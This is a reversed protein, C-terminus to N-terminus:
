PTWADTVPQTSAAAGIAPLSYFSEITRLLRYHTLKEAFRGVKVHAGTIITPIQNSQSHDDEDWTLILMSNNSPAWRVYGDLRQKLWLDGQAVTGDHMDHSLNPVVFSLTPLASFTTPFATSPQNTSGPLAAFDVWPAHKRAYGGISCGTFGAFPLSESYGIFSRGSTRLQSGLNATTFNHPCSDDTLGQTSGSFMALYNPQSPHTVGFSQTFSAGAKALSNIYPASASGIVEAFSHNEMVVVVVHAPRPTTAVSAAAGLPRSAQITTVSNAPGAVRQSQAPAATVSCGVAALVAAALAAVMRCTM